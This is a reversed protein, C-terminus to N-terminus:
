IEWEVNEKIVKAPIGGALCGAPVDQTVLAGAAIVAGDGITVGNLITVRTGIWVHNGIHVPNTNRSGNLAHADSDMVTFDHSIACNDGITIEKHCRLKCGSNIFSNKGLKLHAGKFVQIDAGYYFSFNDCEIKAGNEVLLLSPVNCNKYRGGCLQLMQNVM